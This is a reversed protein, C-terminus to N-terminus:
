RTSPVFAPKPIKGSGNASSRIRHFFTRASESSPVPAWATWRIAWVTSCAGKLAESPCKCPTGLRDSRGQHIGRVEGLPMLLVRNNRFGVVEALTSGDNRASEIRCVDGVAALPRQNSLWGSSSFLEDATRSSARKERGSCAHALRGPAIHTPRVLNM